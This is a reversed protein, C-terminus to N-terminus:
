QASKELKLLKVERELAEVRAEINNALMMEVARRILEAGSVGKATALKKLKKDLEEDIFLSIRKM